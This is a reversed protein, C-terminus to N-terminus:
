ASNCYSYDKGCDAVYRLAHSKEKEHLKQLSKEKYLNGWQISLFINKQIEQKMIQFEAEKISM